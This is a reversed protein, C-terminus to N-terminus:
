LTYRPNTEPITPGRPNTKKTICLRRLTATRLYTITTKASVVNRQAILHRTAMRTVYTVSSKQSTTPLVKPNMTNRSNAARAKKEKELEWYDM